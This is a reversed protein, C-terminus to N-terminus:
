NGTPVAYQSFGIGPFLGLQLACSALAGLPVLFFAVAQQSSLASEQERLKIM